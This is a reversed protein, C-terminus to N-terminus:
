DARLRNLAEDFGPAGRRLDAAIAGQELVVLRDAIEAERRIHTAIVIARNGAQSLLRRLVDRATASDLAETPEDLLWLPTGRLFVRALALRRAQGGSLGHGGEGLQTALGEPLAKVDDHLGAAALAELLDADTADPDALLLNDRLTDLFLETRQTLLTASPSIVIGSQAVNEGALLGLFTSKGAGSPGIFAVREGPAIQMSVSHLAPAAAGPHRVSVNELRVPQAHSATVQVPEVNNAELRPAIRRAALLTKGLEIAGRSLASFPEIAAFALLLCLAAVPAGIFGSQALLAVAVLTGSLLAASAIGFGMNARTEIRNLADDAQSLYSEASLIRRQQDGLQGAMIWETKGSVLEIVRSRLIELGHARRRSPKLAARAAFLPIALGAVILFTTVALGFLPTVLGFAIGTAMAMALAAFIPVLVRLYVSDLADIDLTLRFLLRAPRKALDAAGGAVAWGRFLRERLEALIRLTADHTTIREGYRSFTRALALFRIGASPAFVDFALATATSAGAIATATIFWGSLGLLAAGALATAIALAVGGWMMRQNTSLFLKLITHLSNM